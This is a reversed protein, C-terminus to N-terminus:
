FGQGGGTRRRSRRCRTGRRADEQCTAATIKAPRGIYQCEQASLLTTGQDRSVCGSASGLLRARRRRRRAGSRAHGPPRLDRLLAAWSDTSERYGDTIAVLEKSGDLRVGVLVLTCLRAEELRVNFHIGDAWLYVYDSRSLDREMFLRQEDQWTKSLKAIVPASLGASSGFFGELAPVFDGTSLGHLYLLPLVETVQPSKRCWPPVISSKFQAKEGTEAEVRRDDVRPARIEIAGAVTHVQRPRAHGNRTVLRHGDEDLEGTFSAVYAGVEAELAAALMQQAGRRCIEDLMSRGDGRADDDNVVSLM